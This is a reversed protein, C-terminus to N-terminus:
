LSKLKESNEFLRNQLTFKAHCKQRRNKQDLVLMIVPGTKPPLTLLNDAIMWALTNLTDIELNKSIEDINRFLISKLIEDNQAKIGLQFAEWDEKQLNPSIIYKATGGNEILQQLGQAALRLWSSTFFGVGRFYSNSNKLLPVMLDQVLDYKESDYVPLLNLDKLM